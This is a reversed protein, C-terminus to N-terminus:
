LPQDIANKSSRCIDLLGIANTAESSALKTVITTTMAM